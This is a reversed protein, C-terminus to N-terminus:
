KLSGLALRLFVQAKGSFSVMISKECIVGTGGLPHGTTDTTKTVDPGSMDRLQLKDFIKYM